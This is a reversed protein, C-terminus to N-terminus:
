RITLAERTASAGVSRVLANTRVARHRRLARAARPGLTLRVTGPQGGPLLFPVSKSVGGLKVTGRCWRGVDAACSLQLTVTRHRRGTISTASARPAAPAPLTAPTIRVLKYATPQENLPFDAVEAWLAGDAGVVAAMIRGDDSVPVVQPTLSVASTAGNADVYRASPEDYWTFPGDRSSVQRVAHVVLWAGGARAPAIVTNAYGSAPAPPAGNSVGVTWPAQWLAGAYPIEGRAFKAAQDPTGSAVKGNASVSGPSRGNIDFFVGGDASTWISSPTQYMGEDSYSFCSGRAVRWQRLHGSPDLRAVRKKCLNVVWVAGTAGVTVSTGIERARNHQCGVRPLRWTTIRGSPARRDLEDECTRAWWVTGDPQVTFALTARASQPLRTRSVPQGDRGIRVLEVDTTHGTGEYERTGHEYGVVAAVTGDDLPQLRSRLEVYSDLESSAITTDSLAGDAGNRVLRLTTTFDLAPGQRTERWASWVTGDTNVLTDAYRTAAAAIQGNPVEAITPADGASATAPLTLLALSLAVAAATAAAAL